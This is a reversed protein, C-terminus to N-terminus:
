TLGLEDLLKLNPGEVKPEVVENLDIKRFTKSCIAVADKYDLWTCEKWEKDDSGSESQCLVWDYEIDKNKIFESLDWLLFVEDYQCVFVSPCLNIEACKIFAEVKIKEVLCSGSHKNVSINRNKYELSCFSNGSIM